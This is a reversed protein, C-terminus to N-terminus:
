YDLTGNEMRGNEDIKEPPIIIEEVYKHNEDPKAIKDDNSRTVPYPIKNGLSKSATKLFRLVADSWQNKYKRAFLM